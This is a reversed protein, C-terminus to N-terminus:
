FGGLRKKRPPASSRQAAYRGRAQQTQATASKGIVPRVTPLPQSASPGEHREPPADFDLGRYPSQYVYTETSAGVPWECLLLRAADSLAVPAAVPPCSPTSRQDWRWNENRPIEDTRPPLPDTISESLSMDLAEQEEADRVCENGPGTGSSPETSPRTWRAHVAYEAHLYSAGPAHKAQAYFVREMRTHPREALPAPVHELAELRAPTQAETGLPDTLGLWGLLGMQYVARFDMHTVETGGFPGDDPRALPPKHLSAALGVRSTAQPGHAQMWLAGQTTQEVQWVLSNSAAWCPPSPSPGPPAAHAVITPADFSLMRTPDPHAAYATHLRNSQSSLFLYETEDLQAAQLALTRDFGRHHRWTHWPVHAYRVDYYQVYDTTAIALLHADLHSALISTMHTRSLTDTSYPMSWLAHPSPDRVDLTYVDYCSAAFLTHPERPALMWWRDEPVPEISALETLRRTAADWERVTGHTDVAYARHMAGPVPRADVQRAPLHTGTQVQAHLRIRFGDDHVITGYLLSTITRILVRPAEDRYAVLQVIPAKTSLAASTQASASWSAGPELVTVYVDTRMPGGVGLVLTAAGCSVMAITQGVLDDGAQSQALRTQEDEMVSLALLRAPVYIGPHYRQM